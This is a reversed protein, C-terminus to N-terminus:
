ATYRDVRRDVPDRGVRRTLERSLVAADRAISDYLVNMLKRKARCVQHVDILKQVAPDAAAHAKAITVTDSSKGQWNQVLFRARSDDLRAEAFSEDIETEALGVQVFDLYRALKAMLRM